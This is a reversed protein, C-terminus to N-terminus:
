KRQWLFLTKFEENNDELVESSIKKSDDIIIKEVQSHILIVGYLRIKDIDGKYAPNIQFKYFDSNPKFLEENVIKGNIYLGQSHSNQSFKQFWVVNNKKDENLKVKLKNTDFDEIFLSDNKVSCELVTLSDNKFSFLKGESNSGNEINFSLSYSNNSSLNATPLYQQAFFQELSVLMTQNYYYVEVGSKDIGHGHFKNFYLNVFSQFQKDIRSGHHSHWTIWGSKNKQLEEHLDAFTRGEYSGLSIFKTESDIGKMYMKPGWHKFVVDGEKYNKSITKYAVSPKAPSLTNTIYLANFNNKFHITISLVILLALLIQIVKNFLTRSILTYTGIILLIILPTVFSVYRFHSPYDFIYSFLVWTLGATIFLALYSKRFKQNKILFFSFLGVLLFIINTNASFPYGFLINSYHEAHNIEFLTFRSFGVKFPSIIQILLIGITVASATIYKKEKYFLIASFVAFLLFVPFILVSNQHTFLNIYLLSLLAPLFIYNFNFYKKFFPYKDANFLKYNNNETLFRYTWYFALMFAPFVMAYMRAWRGLSLFQFYLAISFATLLVAYIDKIFFKGIFFVFAILIVGFLASPFRASWANIGFIKFTQATIFQHPKARNYDKGVTEEKIFDWRKYEGTENYGTAGKVVTIEDSYLDFNDLKYFLTFISIGLILIFVSTTFLEKKSFSSKINIFFKNKQKDSKESSFFKDVIKLLKNREFYLSIIGTIVAFVTLLNRVTESFINGSSFLFYLDDAIGSLIILLFLYKLNQHLFSIKVPKSEPKRKKNTLKPTQINKKSTRKM